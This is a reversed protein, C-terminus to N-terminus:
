QWLLMADGKKNTAKRIEKAMAELANGWSTGKPAMSAIKLKVTKSYGQISFSLLLIAMVAQVLTRM